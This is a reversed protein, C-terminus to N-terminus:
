NHERTLRRASRGTCYRVARPSIKINSNIQTGGYEGDLTWSLPEDCLLEIESTKFSYLGPGNLDHSLLALVVDQLEILTQPMRVLTVEFLGDTLRVDNGFIGRFGGISDSNSIMGFMLEDEITRGSYNAKIRYPKITSLSNIGALIYASRGLLSKTKQPTAYSVESFAGFAATYTFYRENFGGVDCATWAGSVALEAARQAASPIGLTKAFDNTTGAPIYGVPPRQQLPVRMLGNVVESLTGDGGSCVLLDFDACRSAATDAADAADQTVRVTVDYDYKNFVDIIDAVKSKVIGKGAVPNFVFLLKKSM